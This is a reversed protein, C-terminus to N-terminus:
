SKADEMHDFLDLVQWGREAAIARLRPSPNTAVPQTVVELLPVDNVSDSYFYSESFDALTLGLGALWQNVRVVKGEKFAPTGDIRGTYRGAVYQPDTAILTPVGFARAIPATVFSNTATVVACLDGAALHKEVLERPRAQFAPRIVQAMFEEHWAALEFPSHAALLGLMFEAAQEATLEGRNYQDMLDDNRRRAQEPDGARGTRALFDAWQYDSDLPLLTHDLDFLAIRRSTM